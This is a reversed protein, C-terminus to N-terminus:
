ATHDQENVRYAIATKTKTAVRQATIVGAEVMRALMETLDYAKTDTFTRLLKTKTCTWGDADRIVRLVRKYLREYPNRSIRLDAMHALRRYSHLTMQCAWSAACVGIEDADRDASLTYLLALKRTNEGIRNFVGKTHPWRAIDASIEAKLQDYLGMADTTTVLRRPKAWGNDGLNGGPQYNGWWKAQEVISEPVDVTVAHQEEPDDDTAEILIMRSLLGDNTNRETLADWVRHPVSTGYVVLHPQNITKVRSLDSVAGGRVISNAEGYMIMLCDMAQRLFQGSRIDSAMELWGGFEDIQM